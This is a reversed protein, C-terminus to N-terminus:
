EKKTLRSVTSCSEKVQRRAGVDDSSLVDRMTCCAMHALIATLKRWRVRNARARTKRMIEHWVKKLCAPVIGGKVFQAMRIHSRHDKTNALDISGLGLAISSTTMRVPTLAILLTEHVPHTTDSHHSLVAIGHDTWVSELRRLLNLCARGDQDCLMRRSSLQIGERQTTGVQGAM